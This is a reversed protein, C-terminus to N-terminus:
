ALGGTLRAYIALSRKEVDVLPRPPRSRTPATASAGDLVLSTYRRPALPQLQVREERDFRDRPREHTTGHLRVNAVRDLWHRRQQDLDADNLFTRGYVFNSRLYRV